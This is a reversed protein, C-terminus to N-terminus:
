PLTLFSDLCCLRVTGGTSREGVLGVLRNRQDFLGVTEKRVTQFLFPVLSTQQVAELEQRQALVDTEGESLSFFCGSLFCVEPSSPSTTTQELVPQYLRSIQSRVRPPKSSRLGRLLWSSARVPGTVYRTGRKGTFGPEDSVGHQM